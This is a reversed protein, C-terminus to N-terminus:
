QAVARLLLIADGEVPKVPAYWVGNEPRAQADILTYEGTGPDFWHAQYAPQVLTRFGVQFRNTEAYYAVVTTMEADATVSPMFLAQLDDASFTLVIGGRGGTVLCGPDLPRLRSWQVQEYFDRLITMQDAGPFDIARYWPDFSGFGISPEDPRPEEWQLHWMGQAGYTYGCAGNQIALYAVRRMMAPTARRRGNPELTLVNEYMSEGEVFPTNPYAKRHQRFPRCDIPYDGHGSQNLTFDFWSEGQFYTPFPRENTYHATMLHHYTNVREIELAVQRWGDLLKSRLADMYGGTEGALTWILPYAGYRANLYRVAMCYFPIAGEALISFFWSLGIAISFGRDALCAMKADLNEQFFPLNPTFSGADQTFYAPTGERPQFECHFNCQYVNFRQAFRRDVIACFQSEFRKDNSTDLSEKIAFQWHTDGLWFFPTNDAHSFHKGQPGVKVFGHQYLPLDGAYPVCEVTGQREGYSLGTVRYHWLGQQTPAFRVKYTDGGDWFADRVLQKGDPATFCATINCDVGKIGDPDHFVFETVRWKEAQM